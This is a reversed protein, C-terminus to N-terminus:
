RKTHHPPQPPPQVLKTPQWQSLVMSPNNMKTQITIIQDHNLSQSQPSPPNDMFFWVCPSLFPLYLPGSIRMHALFLTSITRSAVCDPFECPLQTLQHTGPTYITPSICYVHHISSLTSSPNCRTIWYSSIIPEREGQHQGLCGFKDTTAIRQMALHVM